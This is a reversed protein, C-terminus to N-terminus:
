GREAQRISIIGATKICSCGTLMGGAENFYYWGRNDWHWTSKALSGDEYEYNWTNGQKKWEAAFADSRIAGICILLSLM